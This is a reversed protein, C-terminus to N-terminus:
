DGDLSNFGAAVGLRPGLEANILDRTSDLSQQIIEVKLRTQPQTVSEFIPDALKDLLSISKENSSSIRQSLAPDSQALLGALDGLSVLSLSVHRSSRMSRRAEARTPRPRDFTGLPRGLRTESTFQFGTTLAKFLEQMVEEESRYKGDSTPHLLKQAYNNQWDALIDASTTAIDATLTQILTCRYEANGLATLQEDFLLFELAYFGRAAISVDGYSEVSNAVPDQSTILASLSKPTVSRSDPWFALAFARDDTETPGFRLHSASVWADFSRAYAERLATATPSCNDQAVKALNGSSEALVQFKPLIHTEVVQQVMPNSAQATVGLPAVAIAAIVFLRKM